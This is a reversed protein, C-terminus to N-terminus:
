SGQGRALRRLASPVLSLTVFFWLPGVVWNVVVSKITVGLAVYVIFSLAFWGAAPLGAARGDDGTRPGALGTASRTAERIRTHLPRHQSM